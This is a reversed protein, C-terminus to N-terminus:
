AAERGAAVQRYVALTSQAAAAWTYRRAVRIGNERLHERLMTDTACRRIGDALAQVDLPDVYHAGDGLVEALAPIQSAVVPTGARMAEVPPLGFGEALSPFAFVDAARYLAALRSDDVGRLLHVHEPHDIRAVADRVLAAHRDGGDAVLVLHHSLGGSAARDFAEVLRVLNKRPEVSGVCLVFPRPVGPLGPDPPADAPEISDIGNYVVDISRADAGTRAIIDERSAHSVTVIRDAALARKLNWRYFWVMKRPMSRDGSYLTLPIVDHVTVVLPCPLASPVPPLSPRTHVFPAHFLDIGQEGVLRPLRLLYTAITSLKGLRLPSLERATLRPHSPLAETAGPLCFAVISDGEPAEELLGRLLGHAYRGGGTRLTDPRLISADFGVRM